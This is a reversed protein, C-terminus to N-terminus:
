PTTFSLGTITSPIVLAGDTAINPAAGDSWQITTPAKVLQASINNTPATAGTTNCEVFLAVSSGPSITLPNLNFAFINNALGAASTAYDTYPGLYTVTDTTGTLTCLAPGAALTGSVLVEIANAATFSVDDQGTAAIKFGFIRTRASGPLNSGTVPINTVTPRSRRLKFLDGHVAFRTIEEGGVYALATSGYVGRVVTLSTAACLPATANTVLSYDYAAGVPVAIIDGAQFSAPAGVDICTAAALVAGVVSQTSDIALTSLGVARVGDGLDAIDATGDTRAAHTAKVTNGFGRIVTYQDGAPLATILMMEQDIVLVDGIAYGGLNVNVNTAINTLDIDLADGITQDSVYKESINAGAGGTVQTVNLLAVGVGSGTVPQSAPPGLSGVQAVDGLVCLTLSTSDPIVIGNTGLAITFIGAGNAAYGNTDGIVAGCAAGTLPALYIKSVSSASGNLVGFQLDVLKPSENSSTFKVRALEKKSEGVLVSATASVSDTITGSGGSIIRMFVGGAAAGGNTANNVVSGGAGTPVNKGNGDIAVVDTTAVVGFKLRDPSVGYPAGANINGKITLNISSSKPVKINLNNFIVTGTTTVNEIDSVKTTGNYLAVSGVIDKLNTVSGSDPDANVRNDVGLAIFTDVVDSNDNDLYGTVTLSKVTNDLSAGSRITLGVLEANTTGSVYNRSSPTSAIDMTLGSASMTFINGVTDSSPTISEPGLTDGNPDRIYDPGGALNALTCRIKDGAMNANSPTDFVVSANFTSGAAITNTGSLTVMQSLDTGAGVGAGVITPLEAPGLLTNGYTGDTNKKVLKILTYNAEATGLTNVLGGQVAVGPAGQISMTVDWDKIDLSQGSVNSISLDLCSVKDQGIAVDSAAPGNFAVNFDSGKVTVESFDAPAGGDYLLNIVQVGTGFTGGIVNLDTTEDLYIRVTENNRCTAQAEVYFIKSDGQSIVYPNELVFTALEKSGVAATEALVETGGEVYLKLDNVATADCTGRVYLALRSLKMAETGSAELEFQAVRGTEGVTMDDLSGNKRITVTGANAGSITMLNGKIPFDGDVSSANSSVADANLVEFSHQSASAAAIDLDGTVVLSVGTSGVELNLGTFEVNQTESNISRGTTLRNDGEYLYVFDFDGQNGAGFRHLTLGSLVVPDGSAMCNIVTFPVGTSGKPVSVGAPQEGATCTFDGGTGVASYGTFSIDSIDLVEDAASKVGSVVLDYNKSETQAATTLDVCMPDTATEAKTVNLSVADADQIKYNAAVDAGTGVDGSFCVTVATLSTSYADNVNFGAGPRLQPDMANSVMKAVQDRLVMDGPGFLSTGKYGEVVSWNYGTEVFEYSWKSKPVDTFHPGGQENTPLTGAITIIKMAQERTLSDNPGFNGTLEQADNKYGGIINNVKATYIYPTYWEGLPVDKFPPETPTELTYDWAEVALKAMEARSVKATPNFNVKSTDLIGQAALNEVYPYSWDTPQVDAFSAAAQAVGIALMSAIMMALSFGAVQRRVTKLTISM